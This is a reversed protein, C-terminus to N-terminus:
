ADVGRPGDPNNTAGGGIFAPKLRFICNSASKPTRGLMPLRPPLRRRSAFFSAQGGRQRVCLRQRMAVAVRIMPMSGPRLRQPQPTISVHLCGARKTAAPATVGGTSSSRAVRSTAAADRARVLHQRAIRGSSAATSSVKTLWPAREASDSPCARPTASIVGASSPSGTM